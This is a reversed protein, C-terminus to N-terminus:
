HPVYHRDSSPPLEELVPFQRQHWLCEWWSAPRLHPDDAQLEHLKGQRTQAVISGDDRQERVIWYKDVEYNYEEGRPAAYVNKARPGPKVSHKQIRYVIRDGPRYAASQRM